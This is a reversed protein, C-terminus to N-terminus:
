EAAAPVPTSNLFLSRGDAFTITRGVARNTGDRAQYGVVKLESGIPVSDKTIGRRYLSNPSGGEIMWDTTEGGDGPV